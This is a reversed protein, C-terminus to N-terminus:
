EKISPYMFSVRLEVSVKYNKEVSTDIHDSSFVASLNKWKTFPIRSIVNDFLEKIVRDAVNSAIKVYKNERPLEARVDMGLLEWNQEIIKLIIHDKSVYYYQESPFQVIGEWLNRWNYSGYQNIYRNSIINSPTYVSVGDAQRMREFPQLSFVNTVGQRGKSTVEGLENSSCSYLWGNENSIKLDEYSAAKSSNNRNFLKLGMIVPADCSSFCSMVEVKSVIGRTLDCQQLEKLDAENAASFDPKFLEEANPISVTKGAALEQSSVITHILLRGSYMKADGKSTASSAPASVQTPAVQISTPAAETLMPANTPVTEIMQDHALTSM